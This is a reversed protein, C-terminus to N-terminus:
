SSNQETVSLAKVLFLDSGTPLLRIAHAKACTAHHLERKKAPIGTLVAEFGSPM